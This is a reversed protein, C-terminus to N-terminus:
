QSAAGVAINRFCPQGKEGKETLKKGLHNNRLKGKSLQNHSLYSFATLSYM